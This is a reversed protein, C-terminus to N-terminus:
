LREFLIREAEEESCDLMEALREIKVQLIDAPDMQAPLETADVDDFSVHVIFIRAM